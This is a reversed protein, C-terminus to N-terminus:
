IHTAINTYSLMNNKSPIFIYPTEYDSGINLYYSSIVVENNPNYNIKELM